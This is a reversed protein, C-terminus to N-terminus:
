PSPRRRSSRTGDLGGGCATSASCVSSALRIARFGPPCTAPPARSARSRVSDERSLRGARSRAHAAPFAATRPRVHALRPPSHHFSHATSVRRVALYIQSAFIARALQRTQPSSDRALYSFWTTMTRFIETEVDVRGRNSRSRCFGSMLFEGFAELSRWTSTTRVRIGFPARQRISPRLFGRHRSPALTM